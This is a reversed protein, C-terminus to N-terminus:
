GRVEGEEREEREPFAGSSEAVISDTLETLPGFGDCWESREDGVDTATWKPCRVRDQKEKTLSRFRGRLTSLPETFGGKQKIEKYSMNKKRCQILFDDQKQRKEDTAARATHPTMTMSQPTPYAQPSPLPIADDTMVVNSCDIATTQSPLVYRPVTMSNLPDNGDMNEEHSTLFSQSVNTTPHRFLRSTHLMTNGAEPTQPWAQPAGQMTDVEYLATSPDSLPLNYASYGDGFLLLQRGHDPNTVIEEFTLGSWDCCHIGAAGVQPVTPAIAHFSNPQANCVTSYNTNWDQTATTSGEFGSNPDLTLSADNQYDQATILEHVSESIGDALDNNQPKSLYRTSLSPIFTTSVHNSDTTPLCGRDLLQQQPKSDATQLEVYQWAPAPHPFSSKATEDIRFDM